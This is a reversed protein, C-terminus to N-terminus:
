LFLLSLFPFYYIQSIFVPLFTFTDCSHPRSNQNKAMKKTDKCMYLCYKAIVIFSLVFARSCSIFLPIYSFSVSTARDSSAATAPSLMMMSPGGPTAFDITALLSFAANLFALLKSYRIDRNEVGSSIKPGTDIASSFDDSLYSRAM